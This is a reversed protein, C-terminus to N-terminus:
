IRHAHLKTVTSHHSACSRKEHTEGSAEEGGKVLEQLRPEQEGRALKENIRHGEGKDQSGRM